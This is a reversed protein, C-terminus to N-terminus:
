ARPPELRVENMALLFDWAVDPDFDAPRLTLRVFAGAIYARLEFVGAHVEAALLGAPVGRALSAVFALGGARADFRLPATDAGPDKVAADLAQVLAPRAQLTVRGEDDLVFAGSRDPRDSDAFGLRARDV